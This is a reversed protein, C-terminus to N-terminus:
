HSQQRPTRGAAGMSRISKASNRPATGFRYGGKKSGFTSTNGLYEGPGPGKDPSCPEISAPIPGNPGARTSTTLSSKRKAKSFTFGTKKWSSSSCPHPTYDAPGPGEEDDDAAWAQDAAHLAAASGVLDVTPTHRSSSSGEQHHPHYQPPEETGNLEMQNVTPSMSGACPSCRSLSDEFLIEVATRQPQIPEAPKKLPRSAAPSNSRSRQRPVTNSEKAVDHNQNAPFNPLVSIANNYSNMMFSIGHDTDFSLPTTRTKNNQLTSSVSAGAGEGLGRTPTTSRGRSASTSRTPNNNRTANTRSRSSGCSNSRKVGTVRPAAKAEKSHGSMQSEAGGTVHSTDSYNLMSAPENDVSRDSWQRPPTASESIIQLINNTQPGGDKTTHGGAQSESHQNFQQILGGHRMNPNFVQRRVQTHQRTPHPPQQPQPTPLECESPTQSAPTGVTRPSPSATRGACSGNASSQSRPTGFGSTSGATTPRATCRSPIQIGKCSIYDRHTGFTSTPSRSRTKAMAEAVKYDGPGPTNHVGFDKSTTGTCITSSSSPPITYKPGSNFASVNTDYAGPGPSTSRLSRLDVTITPSSSRSMVTAPSQSRMSPSYTGPGPTGSQSPQQFRSSTPITARPGNPLVHKATDEWNWDGPGRPGSKKTPTQGNRSRPTGGSSVSAATITSSATPSGLRDLSRFAPAQFRPSPSLSRVPSAARSVRQKQLNKPALKRPDQLQYQKNRYPSPAMGNPSASRERENSIDNLPARTPSQTFKKAKATQRQVRSGPPSQEFELMQKNSMVVGHKKRQDQLWARTQDKVPIHVSNTQQSSPNPLQQNPIQQQSYVPTKGRPSQAATPASGESPAQHHTLRQQTHTHTQQQHSQVLSYAVQEHIHQMQQHFNRSQMTQHPLYIDPEPSPAALNQWAQDVSTTSSSSSPGFLAKPELMPADDVGSGNAHTPSGVPTSTAAARQLFECAASAVRAAESPNNNAKLQNPRSFASSPSSMTQM